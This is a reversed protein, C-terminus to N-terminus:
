RGSTSRRSRPMWKALEAEIDKQLNRSSQYTIHYVTGFVMGKDHQYPTSHQRSVIVVTGVILFVLFPLQWLLRKNNRM